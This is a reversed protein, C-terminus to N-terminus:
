MKLQFEIWVFTSNHAGIIEAAWLPLVVFAGTLKSKKEHVFIKGFSSLAPGVAKPFM